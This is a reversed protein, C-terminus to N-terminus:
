KKSQCVRYVMQGKPLSMELAVTGQPTIESVFPKTAFGWGILTNGNPLREVSGQAPTYQNNSYSWILRATFNQEDIEYEVARSEKQSHLTGNDFLLLNNNPLIRASHQNSFGNNPDNVFTFQNKLCKSGGICWIIDKTQRDIKILCNMYKLSLLINGDPFFGLANAHAYDVHLPAIANIDVDPSNTSNFIDNLDFHQKGHWFWTIEGSSTQEIIVPDYVLAEKDGGISSLDIKRSQYSLLLVNGNELLLFEHLDTTSEPLDVIRFSNIVKLNRDCLYHTGSHGGGNVGIKELIGYSYGDPQSQFLYAKTLIRRYLLIKGTYKDIEAIHSNFREINSLFPNNANTFLLTGPYPNELIGINITPFKLPLKKPKIVPQFFRQGWVLIRILWIPPISIETNNVVGSIASDTM